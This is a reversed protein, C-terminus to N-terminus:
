HRVWEVHMYVDTTPEQGSLWFPWWANLTIQMPHSPLGTVWTQVAQGDIFFTLHGKYFDIRYNHYAADPDFSLKALAYNTREGNVWTSFQVLRSGGSFIEIDIEDARNDANRQYLFFTCLSGPATPCQIRAEYSGYLYLNSSAVEGGEYKNASLRLELGAASANVNGPNLLSRGLDHMGEHWISQNLYTFDDLFDFVQFAQHREVEELRVAGPKEPPSLWVAVAANFYGTAPLQGPPVSWSVNLVGSEALPQLRIVTSPVNFWNGAPDQVSYGIWVLRSSNAPNRLQLSTTVLM